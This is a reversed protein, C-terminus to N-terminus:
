GGGAAARGLQAHEGGNREAQRKFNLNVFQGDDVLSITRENINPGRRRIFPSSSAPWSLRVWALSQGFQCAQGYLYVQLFCSLNQKADTSGRPLWRPCGLTLLLLTSPNPFEQGRRRFTSDTIVCQYLLKNGYKQQGFKALSCCSIFCSSSSFPISWATWTSRHNISESPSPILDVFGGGGGGPLM